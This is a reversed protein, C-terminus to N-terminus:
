NILLDGITNYISYIIDIISYLLDKFFHNYANTTDIEILFDKNYELISIKVNYRKYRREILEIDINDLTGYIYIKTKTIYISDKIFTRLFYSIDEINCIVYDINKKKFIKKIKKISITKGKKGKSVKKSRKKGNFQMSYLNYVNENKDLENVVTKNELGITIVNGNVEKCIKKLDNILTM